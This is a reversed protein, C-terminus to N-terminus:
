INPIWTDWDIESSDSLYATLKSTTAELKDELEFRLELEKEQDYIQKLNDWLEDKVKIPRCCRRTFERRTKFYDWQRPKREPRLPPAPHLECESIYNDMIHQYPLQTSRLQRSRRRWRRFVLYRTMTLKSNVYMEEDTSSDAFPYTDHYQNFWYCWFNYMNRKEDDIAMQRRCARNRRKMRKTTQDIYPSTPAFLNGERRYFKLTPEKKSHNPVKLVRNFNFLDNDSESTRKLRGSTNERYWNKQYSGFKSVQTM